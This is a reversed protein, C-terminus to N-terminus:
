GKVFSVIRDIQKEPWQALQINSNMALFSLAVVSPLVVMAKPVRGGRAHWVRVGTTDQEAGVTWNAPSKQLQSRSHTTNNCPFAAELARAPAVASRRM